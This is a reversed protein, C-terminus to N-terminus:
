LVVGFLRTLLLEYLVLSASVFFMTFVTASLPTLKAPRLSFAM